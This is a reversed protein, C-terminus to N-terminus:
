SPRDHLAKNDLAMELPPRSPIPLYSIFDLSILSCIM